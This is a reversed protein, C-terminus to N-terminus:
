LRDFMATGWSRRFHGPTSAVTRWLTALQTAFRILTPSSRYGLLRGLRSCSGRSAVRLSNQASRAGGRLGVCSPNEAVRPFRKLNGRGQSLLALRALRQRLTANGAAAAGQHLRGRAAPACLVPNTDEPDYERWKAFPVEKLVQLAYDYRPTIGADVIRRAVLEPQTVCLDTAKIIARLFHKTAVPNRRIYDRSGVLMCCFYQSWPRDTSNNFIVHGINRARLVESSDRDDGMFGTLRHL